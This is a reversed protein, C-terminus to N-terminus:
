GSTTFEVEYWHVRDDGLYFRDDPPVDYGSNQAAWRLAHCHREMAHLGEHTFAWSMATYRANPNGSRKVKVRGAPRIWGLRSWVALRNGVSATDTGLIRVIEAITTPGFEWLFRATALAIPRLLTPAADKALAEWPAVDVRGRYNDEAWVGPVLRGVVWGFRWLYRRGQETISWMWMPARGTTDLRAEVLSCSRMGTLLEIARGPALGLNAEIARTRHEGPHMCLWSVIRLRNVSTLAFHVWWDGAAGDYSLHAGAGGLLRLVRPGDGRHYGKRYPKRKMPMTNGEKM